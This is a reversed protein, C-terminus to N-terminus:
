GDAHLNPNTCQHHLGDEDQWARFLCYRVVRIPVSIRPRGLALPDAVDWGEIWLLLHSSSNMCVSTAEEDVMMVPHMQCARPTKEFMNKSKVAAPATFLDLADTADVMIM